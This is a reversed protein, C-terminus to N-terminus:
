RRADGVARRRSARPTLEGQRAAQRGEQPGPQPEGPARDAAHRGGGGHPRLPRRGAPARGPRVQLAGCRYRGPDAPDARAQLHGMCRAFTSTPTRSPARRTRTTAAGCSGTSAGLMVAADIDQPTPQSVGVYCSQQFYETASRPPVLEGPIRMEGAKNSRISDMLTDLSSWRRGPDLRVRGRHPHVEPGPVARLRRRPDHLRAAAARLVPDGPLAGVAHGPGAQLRPRRHGSHANVPMDLEECLAWVPDYIPDYLPALWDCTPPVSGILVGGRLGNEHCWRIDALTDDVDNLFIQGIGARAEPKEACYDAMWRNHAQIGAHRLEYEDPTPPQAFLVFNPFFPPVTNPFIVEGVVGDGNQDADRRESDWNRIRLDTDKLDKFPNKYKERWADFAPKYEDDLYERYQAHSGGAHTDCSIVVYHDDPGLM